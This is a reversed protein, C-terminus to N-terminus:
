LKGKRRQILAITKPNRLEILADNAIWRASPSPINLIEKALAISKKNLRLNRKGVQRLAWNVAKKVFNREDSAYQRLLPFFKEFEDDDTKKHHVAMVAIMVIGARRVFEKEVSAWRFPLRYAFETKEFFEACCADCQAWNQLDGAWHDLLRLTAKQPDAILAALIRAEHYGSEWLEMALTHNTGITKALTRIAPAPVGFAQQADIRYRKMGEVNKANGLSRLTEIVSQYNMEKQPLYLIENDEAYM